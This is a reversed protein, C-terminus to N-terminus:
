AEQSEVLRQVLEPFVEPQLNAFAFRLYSEQGKGFIEGPLALVKHHRVLRRAVDWAAKNAFPHRVYAFYAGASVIEYRLASDGFARSFAAVREAMTRRNSERWEGLHRLGFLAAEQGIASPCIAVCDAAKSVQDLLKESAAISGVRHGTLHYAKSFSYLHILSEPWDRRAFLHHPCEEHSLFDKYTEDIILAIRRGRALEFIAEITDPPYVAGTPNNPTVLVIARTRSTLRREAETPDPIATGEGMCPLPVAEIGQMELWMSHNFYYPQPLLVEDGHGAVASVALCFAQNCGATIGVQDGSVWGEYFASFHAALEERLERVGLIPTYRHLEHRGMAEALHTRLAEAPLASPEAQATDLLARGDDPLDLTWDHAEAIPPAAVDHLAENLRYHTSTSSM